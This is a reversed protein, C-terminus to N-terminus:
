HIKQMWKIKHGDKRPFVFKFNMGSAFPCFMLTEEESRQILMTWTGTELNVLLHWVDNDAILGKAIVEEGHEEKFNKIGDGIFCPIQSAAELPFLLFLFIIIARFAM